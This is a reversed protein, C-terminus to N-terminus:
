LVGALLEALNMLAAIAMAMSGALLLARALHELRTLPRCYPGDIVGPAFRQAQKQLQVPKRRQVQKMCAGTCPPVANLCAGIEQCTQLSNVTKTM